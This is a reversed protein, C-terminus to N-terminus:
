ANKYPNVHVMIHKINKFESEIANHVCEAIDHSERLSIDPNASIEIDVYIKNGFLRTHILDVGLVGEQQMACNVILDETEESCSKDIM